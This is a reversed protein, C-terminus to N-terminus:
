GVEGWQTASWGHSEAGWRNSGTIRYTEGWCATELWRTEDGIRKPFWLFRHRIRQAGLQDERHTWRM